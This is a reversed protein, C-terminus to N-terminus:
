QFVAAYRGREVLRNGVSIVLAVVILLIFAIADAYPWNLLIVEQQYVMTGMVQVRGGGLIAPTAFSGASLVFVLISGALVGPLSLPLTVRLFAQLSSAGLNRAALPLSTDIRQLSAIMSIIMYPIETQVLGIIVGRENFLMKVPEERLKVALLFDNVVGGPGLIMLFGMARIVLTVLLPSIVFLILIGRWRGGRYVIFYAVPYALILDIVMVTFSLRLTRWLIGLYFSDSLFKTYNGINWDAIIGKVPSFKWFSQIFSYFIGPAFFLLLLLLAPLILLYPLFNTKAKKKPLATEGPRTLAETM